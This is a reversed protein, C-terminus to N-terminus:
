RSLISTDEMRLRTQGCNETEFSLLLIPVSYSLLLYRDNMLMCDSKEVGCSTSMFKSATSHKSLM